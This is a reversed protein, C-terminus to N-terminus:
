TNNHLVLRIRAAFLVERRLDILFYNMVDPFGSDTTLCSDVLLM